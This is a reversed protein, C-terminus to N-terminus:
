RGPPGANLDLFRAGDVKVRNTNRWYFIKRAAVNARGGGNTGTQWLQADRQSTGELTLMEKGTNYSLRHGQASFQEGDVRMNGTADLDINHQDRRAGPMEQITLRDCSLLVDKPGPKDFGNPDLEQQWDRVPGFVSKVQNLFTLRKQRFNGSLSKQFDVRLFSLQGDGQAGPQAPADGVPDGPNLAAMQNGYRHTKIWGPGSAQIDGTTQDIRLNHMQLRDISRLQGNEITRSELSVNEPCHLTQLGLDDVRGPNAFDIDRTLTAVLQATRMLQHPTKATVDKQFSLRQGDFRMGGKWDIALTAGGGAPQGALDQTMPLTMRGPGNVELTNRAKHGEIKAGSLILGGAEVIAEANDNGEVVLRADDLHANLLRLSDGRVLMAKRQNAGAAVHERMEVDGKITVDRLASTRGDTAVRVSVLDGRVQYRSQNGAQTGDLPNGSRPPRQGGAGLAVSQTPTGPLNNIPTFWMELRETHGVLQASNITVQGQALMRDPTYQPGDEGGNAPDSGKSDENLWMWIENSSLTGAEAFRVTANGLVSLLPQGNDPRLRLERTWSASVKSNEEGPMRAQLRGKGSALIEGIAGAPGPQFRVNSAEVVDEGHRLLVQSTSKLAIEGSDLHYVLQECRLEADEDHRRGIVPHGAAEIRRPEMKDSAGRAFFISLLECALHDAPGAAGNRVVDVQEEFSAVLSLADFRFPGSSTIEVQETAEADPAGGGKLPSESTPIALQLRVQEHITISQVDRSKKSRLGDIEEVEAMDVVLKRGSGHNDGLSFRVDDDTWIRGETMRVNSTTLHLRQHRPPQATEASDSDSSNSSPDKAIRDDSHELIGDITVDGRLLCHQMRGMKLRSLDVGDEFQIEAGQPARLVIVSPEPNARTVPGNPFFVLTCPQIILTGEDSTDYDHILLTFQDSGMMMTQEDFEWGDKPLFPRIRELLPEDPGETDSEDYGLQYDPAAVVMAEPEVLPVVVFAYSYYAVLVIAFSVAARRLRPFM